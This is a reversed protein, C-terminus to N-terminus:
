ESIIESYLLRLRERLYLVAYRKRSILTNLPIGTTEAMEQFSRDELEHWIFVQAQEPPLEDLSFAITEMLMENMMKVEGNEADGAILDALFLPEEEGQSHVVQQDLSLTKKKRYRDTIRNRAVRFLWSSMREIRSFVRYSEVLEYFVDQLIDEAEEDDSVRKRIFRLLKRREGEVIRTIERNQQDTMKIELTM